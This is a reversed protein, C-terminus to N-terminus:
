GYLIQALFDGYYLVNGNLRSLGQQEEIFHLGARRGNLLEPIEVLLLRVQM